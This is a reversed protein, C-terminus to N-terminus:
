PGETLRMCSLFSIPAPHYSFSLSLACQLSPIMIRRIVCPCLSSWPSQCICIASNFPACPNLREGLVGYRRWLHMWSTKLVKCAFGLSKPEPEASSIVGVSWATSYNVWWPVGLTALGVFCHSHCAAPRLQDNWSIWAHSALSLPHLTLDMLLWQSFPLSSAQKESWPGPAVFM